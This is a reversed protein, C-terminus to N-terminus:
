WGHAFCSVFLCSILISMLWTNVCSMVVHFCAAWSFFLSRAVCYLIYCSNLCGIFCSSHAVVCFVVCTSLLARPQAFELGCAGLVLCISVHLTLTRVEVHFRFHRSGFVVSWCSVLCASLLTCLELVSSAAFECFVPCSPLTLASDCFGHIVGM